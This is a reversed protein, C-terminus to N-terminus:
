RTLYLSSRGMSARLEKKARYILGRVAGPTRDMLRAVEDIPKGELFSLTLARRYDDSLQAIAVQMAHVAEKKAILRSATNSPGAVVELLDLLSSADGLHM